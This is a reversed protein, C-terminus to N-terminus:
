MARRKCAALAGYLQPYHYYYVPLAPAEAAIVRITEVLAELSSPRMICPAVLLISDAGAAQAQRTLSQAATISIDGSHFLLKPRSEKPLADIAARWAVLLDLRETHTLSTKRQACCGRGSWSPAGEIAPHQNRSRGAGVDM